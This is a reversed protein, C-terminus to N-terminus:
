RNRRRIKKDVEFSVFIGNKQVDTEAMRYTGYLSCFAELNVTDIQKITGLRKLEPVLKRWLTVGYGDLHRPPNDQLETLESQKEQFELNRERQDARVSEDTSTTRKRGSNRKNVLCVGREDFTQPISFAYKCCTLRQYLLTEFKLIAWEFIKSKQM